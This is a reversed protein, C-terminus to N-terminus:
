PLSIVAKFSQDYVDMGEADWGDPGGISERLPPLADDAQFARDDHLLHQIRPYEDRRILVYHQHTRDDSVALPQGPHAELADRQEDTRKLIM